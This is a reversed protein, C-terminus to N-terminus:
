QTNIANQLAGNLYSIYSEITPTSTGVEMNALTQRASGLELEKARIEDDLTAIQQPIAAL